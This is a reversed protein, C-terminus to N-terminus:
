TAPLRPFHQLGRETVIGALPMDWPEVPLIPLGQVEYAVGVLSPSQWHRRERLCAFTRDYYGGGMGLRNGADDFAVLPMLVLDLAAIPIRRSPRVVPEPIGFRNHVFRSRRTYPVFWMRPRRMIPLYVQKGAAWLREILPQPDMEADNTVYAAIRQARQCIGEVVFRRAMQEALRERLREDLARRTARMQRRLQNRTPAASM